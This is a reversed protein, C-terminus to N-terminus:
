GLAIRSFSSVKLDADIGKLMGEVSVSSDKVFSQKNEKCGLVIVVLLLLLFTKKM